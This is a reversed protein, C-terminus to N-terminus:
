TGDQLSRTVALAGRLVRGADKGYPIFRKRSIGSWM